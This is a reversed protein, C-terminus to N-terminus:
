KLDHSESNEGVPLKESSSTGLRIGADWCCDQYGLFRSARTNSTLTSIFRVIGSVTVNKDTGQIDLLGLSAGTNDELAMATEVLCDDMILGLLCLEKITTNTRLFPTIRSWPRGKELGTDLVTDIDPFRVKLSTLVTNTELVTRLSDSMEDTWPDESAPLSFKEISNSNRLGEIVQLVSDKDTPQDEMM